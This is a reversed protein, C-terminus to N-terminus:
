DWKIYMGSQELPTRCKPCLLNMDDNERLIEMRGGCKECIHPYEAFKTYCEELDYWAVYDAGEFPYAVSWRGHEPKEPKKENPIYMTLDMGERFNGCDECCLVVHEADIAGDKHEKFFNQIEEGLEGNKAQKVAEAYEMPFTFGVGFIAVFEFGCKPCKYGYGSGM